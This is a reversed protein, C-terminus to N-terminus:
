IFERSSSVKVTNERELPNTSVDDIVQSAYKDSKKITPDVNRTIITSKLPQNTKNSDMLGSKKSEQMELSQYLNGLQKINEAETEFDEEININDKLYDRRGAPSYTLFAMFITIITRSVIKNTVTVNDDILSVASATNNLNVDNHKENEKRIVAEM